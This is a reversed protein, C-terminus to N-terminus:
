TLDPIRETTWENTEEDFTYRLNGAYDSMGTSLSDEVPPEEFVQPTPDAM